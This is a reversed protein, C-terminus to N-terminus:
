DKMAREIIRRVASEKYIALREPNRRYMALDQKHLLEDVMKLVDEYKDEYLYETITVIQQTEGNCVKVWDEPHGAKLRRRVVSREDVFVPRMDRNFVTDAPM